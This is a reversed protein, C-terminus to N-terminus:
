GKTVKDWVLVLIGVDDVDYAYEEFMDADSMSSGVAQFSKKRPLQGSKWTVLRRRRMGEGTMMMVVLSRTATRAGLATKKVAATTV